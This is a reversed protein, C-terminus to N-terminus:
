KVEASVSAYGEASVTVKDHLALEEVTVSKGAPITYDHEIVKPRNHSIVSQDIRVHVKLDAAASSMLHAVYPGKPGEEKAFHVAVPLAKAAEARLAPAFALALVCGLALLAPRLSILTNKM